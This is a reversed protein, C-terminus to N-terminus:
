FLLKSSLQAINSVSSLALLSISARGQVKGSRPAMAQREAHLRRGPKARARDLTSDRAAFVAEDYVLDDGYM